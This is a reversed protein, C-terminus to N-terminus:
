MGQVAKVIEAKIQRQLEISRLVYPPLRMMHGDLYRQVDEDRARIELTTSAETLEQVIQPIYRSTTFLNV